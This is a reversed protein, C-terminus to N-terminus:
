DGFLTQITKINPSLNGVPNIVVRPEYIDGDAGIQFVAETANANGFSDAQETTEAQIFDGTSDMKYYFEISSGNPLPDFTILVMHYPTIQGAKKIPSRFELGEYVATAKNNSDVKKVGYDTGDKYSILITTGDSFIAGIEDVELKYELNLAFIGNKIKRGYSYVGNRDTDAGFVGFLALNGVTQKDIWSSAGEEWEFFNIEPLLNAVGGPNVRGGGPFRNVPVTDAMNSFFIEGNNGVQALPVETDIAGNVGRTSDSARVTGLIARGNREVITKVINGPILDTAEPTYSGDYGVYAVLRGNGIVLAGGVLAHTHWDQSSLNGVTEVDNWDERGSLDKRFELTDTAWYLWIRGDNTYWQEAGKIAGNPDKYVRAWFGESDRRYISGTNAFGYVYGDDAEVFKIILDDFVTTLGASPSPSPSTSHSPSTSASPSASASPSLSPSPSIGTSPSPSSSPSSSPSTSASPSATASQSSSPSQSASPSVSASPSGQDIGEDVLAQGASLTDAKKRIDLNYGFKFSGKVGKDNFDSLGARFSDLVHISM